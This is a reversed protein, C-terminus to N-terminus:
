YVDPIWSPFIFSGNRNNLHKIYKTGCPMHGNTMFQDLTMLKKMRLNTEIVVFEGSFKILFINHSNLDKDFIDLITTKSPSNHDYYLYVPIVPINNLLFIKQLIISRHFCIGGNKLVSDIRVEENYFTKKSKFDLIDCLQNQIRLIDSEDDIKLDTFNQKLAVVDSDTPKIKSFNYESIVNFGIFISILFLSLISVGRWFM